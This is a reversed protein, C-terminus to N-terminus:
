TLGLEIAESLAIQVDEPDLTGGQNNIILNEIVVRNSTNNNTTLPTVRIPSASQIIEPAGGAEGVISPINGGPAIGGHGFFGAFLAGGPIFSLGLQIAASLLAKELGQGSVLARALNQSFTGAATAAAEMEKNVIKIDEPLDPVTDALAAQNEAWQQSLTKAVELRDIVEDMPPIIERADIPVFPVPPDEPIPLLAPIDKVTIKIDNLLKLEEQLAEKRIRDQEERNVNIANIAFGVEGYRQVLTPLDQENQTRIEKAIGVFGLAVDTLIPLFDEALNQGLATTATNFDLIADAAAEAEKAAKEGFVIGLEVAEERLKRIGDSGEELLPILEIGARGFLEQALAAKRTDDTMSRFGDAIEPLISELNKLSGDTNKIEIDLTRFAELPTILGRSADSINRALRGFAKGMSEVNAGSREAAFGISSLFEVSTGTARSFKAIEDRFTITETVLSKLGRLIRIFGLGALIGGFAKFANGMIGASKVSKKELNKVSKGASKSAAKIKSTAKKTDADLQM